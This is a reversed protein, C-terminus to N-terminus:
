RLDLLEHRPPIWGPVASPCPGPAAPIRLDSFDLGPGDYRLDGLIWGGDEERRWYPVRLFHLAAAAYCNERALALLETVPAVFEGRWVVAERSPALIPRLPATPVDEPSFPCRAASWLLPLPAITARKVRYDGERILKCALFAASRAEHENASGSLAILKQIRDLNSM